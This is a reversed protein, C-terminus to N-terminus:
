RSRRAPPWCRRCRSPRNPAASRRGTGATCSCWCRAGGPEREPFYDLREAPHPGYALLDAGPPGPPRGREAARVRAPLRGSEDRPFEALVAPGTRGPGHGRYVAAGAPPADRMREAGRAYAARAREYVETLM